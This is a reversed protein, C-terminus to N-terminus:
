RPASAAMDTLIIGGSRTEPAVPQELLNAKILATELGQVRRTLAGTRGVL